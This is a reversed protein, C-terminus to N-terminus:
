TQNAFREYIREDNVDHANLWHCGVKNGIYLLIEGNLGKQIVGRKRLGTKKTKRLIRTKRNFVM